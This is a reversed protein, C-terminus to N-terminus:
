KSGPRYETHDAESEENNTELEARRKVLMSEAVAM